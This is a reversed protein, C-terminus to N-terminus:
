KEGRYYKIMEDRIKKTIGFEVDTRFFKIGFKELGKMNMDDIVALRDQFTIELDNHQMFYYIEDMRGRYGNPFDYPFHFEPTYGLLAEGILGRRDFMKRTDEINKYRKLTRWTSSWIIKLDVAEIVERLLSALEPFIYEEYHCTFESFQKRAEKQIEETTNFELSSELEKYKNDFWKRTLYNCNLVGDMDLFLVNKM